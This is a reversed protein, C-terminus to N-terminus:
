ALCERSRCRWACVCRLSKVITYIPVNEKIYQGLSVHKQAISGDFPAIVTADKVRKEALKVDARLSRIVAMQTRLDDRTMEFAAERARYSKELENFRESAIDGTAVLKKANEYKSARGGDPEM